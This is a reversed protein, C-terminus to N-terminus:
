VEGYVREPSKSPSPVLALANVAGRMIAKVTAQITSDGEDGDFIAAIGSDLVVARGVLVRRGAANKLILPVEQPIAMEPISHRSM